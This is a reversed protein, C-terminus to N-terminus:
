GASQTAQHTRVSLGLLVWSWGHLVLDIGVFLGIVWLSSEPWESWILAGLLLDVVGNFLVWPWAPFQEVLSFVIRILGGVFFSAALLLTLVAAAKIPDEIMFLGILLYLVAAILHMAFGRLNRVLVAHILEAFGAVLLLVGFVVVSALTVIFTSSIALFGVIVSVLGLAFLLWWVRQLRAREDLPASAPPPQSPLSM